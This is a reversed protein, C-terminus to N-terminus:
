SQPKPRDLRKDRAVQQWPSILSRPQPSLWVQASRRQLALERAAAVAVAAAAVQELPTGAPLSIDAASLGARSDDVEPTPQETGAPDQLSRILLLITAMVLALAAFTVGMGFLTILLAQSLTEGL